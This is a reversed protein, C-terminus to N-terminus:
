YRAVVSDALASTDEALAAAAVRGHGVASHRPITGAVASADLVGSRQDYGVASHRAVTSNGVTPSDLVQLSQSDGAAGERSVGGAVTAADVHRRAKDCETGRDDGPVGPRVAM